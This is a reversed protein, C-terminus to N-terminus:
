LPPFARFPLLEAPDQVAIGLLQREIDARSRAHQSLYRSREMPRERVARCLDPLHRRCLRVFQSRASLTQCKTGRKFGAWPGVVRELRIDGGKWSFSSVAFGLNRHFATHDGPASTATLRRAVSTICYGIGSIRGYRTESVTRVTREAERDKTQQLDSFECTTKLESVNRTKKAHTSTSCEIGNLQVVFFTLRSM